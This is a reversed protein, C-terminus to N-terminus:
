FTLEWCFRNEDVYCWDNAECIDWAEDETEATTFLHKVGFASVMYIKVM